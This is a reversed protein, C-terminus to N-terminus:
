PRADRAPGSGSGWYGSDPWRKTRACDPDGHCWSRMGGPLTLAPDACGALLAVTLVVLISAGRRAAGAPGNM